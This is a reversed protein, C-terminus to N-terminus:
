TQKKRTSRRTAMHRPRPSGKHTSTDLRAKKSRTSSAIPPSDDKESEEDEDEEVKSTSRTHRTNRTSSRTAKRVSGTAARRRTSKPAPTPAPSEVETENGTPEASPSTEDKDEFDSLHSPSTERSTDGAHELMLDGYTGWPLDFAKWDSEDTPESQRRSLKPYSDEIDDLGKLNYLTELKQWVQKPSLRGTSYPSNNLANTISIIHCYKHLGAPKYRCIAKFLQTEQDVTWVENTKM